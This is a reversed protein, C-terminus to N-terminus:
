QFNAQNNNNAQNNKPSTNKTNNNSDHPLNRAALKEMRTLRHMMEKLIQVTEDSASLIMSKFIKSKIQCKGDPRMKGEMKRNMVEKMMGDGRM